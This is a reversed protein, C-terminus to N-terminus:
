IGGGQKLLLKTCGGIDVPHELRGDTSLLCGVVLIISTARGDIRPSALPKVFVEAEYRNVGLTEEPDDDQHGVADPCRCLPCRVAVDSDGEHTLRRLCRVHFWHHCRTQYCNGENIVLPELCMCCEGLTGEADEPAEDDPLRHLKVKCHDRWLPAPMSVVGAMAYDDQVEEAWAVLHTGRPAVAAVVSVVGPQPTGDEGRSPWTPVAVSHVKVQFGGTYTCTRHVVKADPVSAFPTEHCFRRMEEMSTIAYHVGCPFCVDIGDGRELFKGLMRTGDDHAAQWGVHLDSNNCLDCAWGGIFDGIRLPNHLVTRHSHPGHAFHFRELRYHPQPQERVMCDDQLQAGREICSIVHAVDQPKHGPAMRKVGEDNTGLPFRPTYREHLNSPPPLAVNSEPTISAGVRQSLRCFADLQRLVEDRQTPEIRFSPATSCDEAPSEEGGEASNGSLRDLATKWQSSLQAYYHLKLPLPAVPWCQLKGLHEVFIRLYEEASSHPYTRPDSVILGTALRQIYRVFEPRATPCTGWVQDSVAGKDVELFHLLQRTEMFLQRHKAALERAMPDSHEHARMWWPTGDRTAYEDEEDEEMNDDSNTAQEEYDEEEAEEEENLIREEEDADSDSPQRPPIPDM